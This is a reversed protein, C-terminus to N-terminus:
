LMCGVKVGLQVVTLLTLQNNDDTSNSNDMNKIVTPSYCSHEVHMFFLVGSQKAVFICGGGGWWWWCWTQINVRALVIPYSWAKPLQDDRNLM